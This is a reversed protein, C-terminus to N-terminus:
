ETTYKLINEIQKAAKPNESKFLEISIEYRGKELMLTNISDKLIENYQIISDLKIRNKKVLKITDNHTKEGFVCLSLLGLSLGVIFGLFNKM